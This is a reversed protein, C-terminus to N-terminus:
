KFVPHDEGHGCLSLVKLLSLYLLVKNTTQFILTQNINTNKRRFFELKRSNSSHAIKQTQFFEWFDQNKGEVFLWILIEQSVRCKIGNQRGWCRQMETGLPHLACFFLPNSKTYGFHFDFKRFPNYGEGTVSQLCAM